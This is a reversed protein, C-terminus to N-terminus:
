KLLSIYINGFDIVEHDIEENCGFQYTLYNRHFFCKAQLETRISYGQGCYFIQVEKVWEKSYPEKQFDIFPYEPYMFDDSHFIKEVCSGNHLFIKVTFDTDLMGFHFLTDLKDNEGKGIKGWTHISIMDACAADYERVLSCSKFQYSVRFKKKTLIEYALNKEINPELVSELYPACLCPWLERFLVKDNRCISLYGTLSDYKAFGNLSKCTINKKKKKEPVFFTYSCSQDPVLFEIRETKSPATIYIYKEFENLLKKESIMQEGNYYRITIFKNENLKYLNEYMCNYPNDFDQKIVFGKHVIKVGIVRCTTTDMSFVYENIDTEWLMDFCGKSDVEVKKIVKRKGLPQMTKPLINNEIVVKTTILKIIAPLYNHLVIDNHVTPKEDLVVFGTKGMMYLSPLNKQNVEAIIELYGREIIRKLLLSFMEAISFVASHYKSDILIVGVIIQNARCVRQGGLQYCAVYSVINGKSKGIVGFVFGKKTQYERFKEATLEQDYLGLGFRNRIMLKAVDDADNETYYTYEIKEM